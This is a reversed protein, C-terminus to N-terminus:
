KRLKGINKRDRALEWRDTGINRDQPQNITSVVEDDLYEIIAHKMNSDIVKVRLKKQKEYLEELPKTDINDKKGQIIAMKIEELAKKSPKLIEGEVWKNNKYLIIKEEKDRSTKQPTLKNDFVKEMKLISSSFAVGQIPESPYITGYGKDDVVCDIGLKRLIISWIRPDAHYASMRTINWFYGFWTQVKGRGSDDHHSMDDVAKKFVDCNKYLDNFTNFHKYCKKLEFYFDDLKIEYESLDTMLSKLYNNFDEENFEESTLLVKKYNTLKFLIIYKRDQAFPIEGEKLLNFIKQTLPYFYIGIPTDHFKLHSKPYIGLKNVDSFQICFNKDVYEKLEELITSLVIGRKKAATKENYIYKKVVEYIKERLLFM